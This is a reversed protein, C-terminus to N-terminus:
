QTNYSPIYICVAYIICVEWVPDSDLWRKIGQYISDEKWKFRWKYFVSSSCCIRIRSEDMIGLLSIFYFFPSSEQLLRHIEGLEESWIRRLESNEKRKKKDGCWKKKDDLIWGM